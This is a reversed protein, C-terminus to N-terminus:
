VDVGRLRVIRKANYDFLVLARTAKDILCDIAHNFRGTKEMDSTIPGDQFRRNVAGSVLVIYAGTRTDVMCVAYGAIIVYMRTGDETLTLGTFYSPFGERPDLIQMCRREGSALDFAHVGDDCGVYLRGVDRDADADADVDLPASASASSWAPPPVHLAMLRPAPLSQRFSQASSQAFHVYEGPNGILTTVIREAPAAGSAPWKAASIRRVWGYGTVFLAGNPAVTISHMPGLRARSAPGDVCGHAYSGVITTLMRTRMNLCRVRGYYEGIMLQPGAVLDTTDVAVCNPSGFTAGGLAPGDANGRVGIKGAITHTHGGIPRAYQAMMRALEKPLVEVAMMILPVARTEYEPMDLHAKSEGLPDAVGLVGEVMRLTHTGVDLVILSDGYRCLSTSGNFTTAGLPGDATMDEDAGAVVEITLSHGAAFKCHTTFGDTMQYTKSESM